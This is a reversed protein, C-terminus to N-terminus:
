EKNIQNSVEENLTYCYNRLTDHFGKLSYHIYEFESLENELDNKIDGEIDEDILSLLANVMVRLSNAAVLKESITM